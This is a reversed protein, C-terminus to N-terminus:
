RRDRMRSGRYMDADFMVQGGAGRLLNLGTAKLPEWIKNRIMWDWKEAPNGREARAEEETPLVGAYSDSRVPVAPNPPVVGHHTAQWQADLARAEAFDADAISKRVQAAYILRDEKSMANAQSRRINQGMEDLGRALDKEPANFVQSTPQFGPEAAGIAALPSLGSRAADAVRWSIGNQAFERQYAVNQAAIDKQTQNEKNTGLISAVAGPIVTAIDGLFSM